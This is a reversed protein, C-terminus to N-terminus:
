GGQCGAGADERLVALWHLHGRPGAGGSGTGAMQLAAYRSSSRSASRSVRSGGIHMAINIQQSEVLAAGFLQDTSAYRTAPLQSHRCSHEHHRAAPIDTHNKDEKRIAVSIVGLLAASVAAALLSIAALAIPVAM